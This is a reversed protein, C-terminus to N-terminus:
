PYSVHCCFVFHHCHLCRPLFWLPAPMMACGLLPATHRYQFAAAPLHHIQNSSLLLVATDAPLDTPVHELNRSACQVVLAANREVCHCRWPCGATVVMMMTTTMMMM